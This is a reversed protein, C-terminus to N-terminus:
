QKSEPDFQLNIISRTAKNLTRAADQVASQTGTIAKGLTGSITSQLSSIDFNALNSISTNALAKVIIISVLSYADGIDKYREDINLNFEKIAPKTGASYDKFVVKGIKLRLDDVRIAPAKKIDSEGPSKGEKQSKVVKLSNLNLEGKENKVVLLEKLEIRIERLHIRGRMISPLDYDVYIEPMNLMTRDRYGIPNLIVLRKISVVPKLIGVSFYGMKLKLGTVFRVGNEVSVKVLMDKLVPLVLAAIVFATLSILISRKM